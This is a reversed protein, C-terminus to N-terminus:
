HSKFLIYVNHLVEYFCTYNMMELEPEIFYKIETTHLINMEYAQSFLFVSSKSIMNEGDVNYAYYIM